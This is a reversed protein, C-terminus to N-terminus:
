INGGKSKPLSTREEQQSEPFDLMEQGRRPASISDDLATMLNSGFALEIRRFLEELLM